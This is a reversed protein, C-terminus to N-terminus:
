ISLSGLTIQVESGRGDGLYNQPSVTGLIGNTGHGLIFASGIGRGYMRLGSDQLFLTDSYFEFRDIIGGRPQNFQQNVNTQNDSMNGM